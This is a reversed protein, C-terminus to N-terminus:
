FHWKKCIILFFTFCIPTVVLFILKLGNKSNKSGKKKFVVTKGDIRSPLLSKYWWKYKQSISTQLSNRWERVLNLTSEGLCPIHKSSEPVELYNSEYKAWLSSIIHHKFYTRTRTRTRSCITQHFLLCCQSWFCCFHIKRRQLQKSFISICVSQKLGVQGM